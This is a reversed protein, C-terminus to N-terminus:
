AGATQDPRGVRLAALNGRLDNPAHEGDILLRDFGSGPCLEAAYADALVLWPEIQVESRARAEKFPNAPTHM